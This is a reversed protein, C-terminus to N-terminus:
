AGFIVTSPTHAGEQAALSRYLSDCQQRLQQYSAEHGATLTSIAGAIDGRQAALAASAYLAASAGGEEETAAAVGCLSSTLSGQVGELFDAQSMADGPSSFIALWLLLDLSAKDAGEKTTTAAAAFAGSAVAVDLALTLELTRATAEEEPNETPLPGLLGSRLAAAAAGGALLLPSVRGELGQTALSLALAYAPSFEQPAAFAAASKGIANLHAALVPAEHQLRAAAAAVNAAGADLAAADAATAEGASARAAVAGFAATLDDYEKLAAQWAAHPPYNAGCACLASYVESGVAAGMSSSGQLAAYPYLQQQLARESATVGTNNIWSLAKASGKIVNDLASYRTDREERPRTVEEKLADPLSKVFTEYHERWSTDPPPPAPAEMRGRNLQAITPHGADAKFHGSRADEKTTILANQLSDPVIGLNEKSVTVAATAQREEEMPMQTGGMGYNASTGIITM